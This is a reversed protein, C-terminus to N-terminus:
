LPLAIRTDPVAPVPLVLMAAEKAFGGTVLPFFSTNNKCKLFRRLLNDAIHVRYTHAQLLMNVVSQEIEMGGTGGQIANSICRTVLVCVSLFSFVALTITSSGIVLKNVIPETLSTFAM